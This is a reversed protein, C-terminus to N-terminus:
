ICRFAEQGKLMGLPDFPHTINEQGCVFLECRSVGQTPTTSGNVQNPLTRKREKRKFAREKLDGVWIFTAQLHRFHSNSHPRLM